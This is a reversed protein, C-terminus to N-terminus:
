ITATAGCGVAVAVFFRSFPTRLVKEVM